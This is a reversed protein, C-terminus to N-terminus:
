HPTELTRLCLQDHGCLPWINIAFADWFAALAGYSRLRVLVFPYRAGSSRLAEKPEHTRYVNRGKPVSFRVVLQQAFKLFLVSTKKDVRTKSMKDM